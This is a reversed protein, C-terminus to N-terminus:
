LTLYSTESSDVLLPHTCTRSCLLEIDHVTFTQDALHGQLETPPTHTEHVPAVDEGRRGM